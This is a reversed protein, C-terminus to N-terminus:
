ENEKIDKIIEMFEISVSQLTVKKNTDKVFVDELLGANQYDLEINGPVNASIYNGKLQSPLSPADKYNFSYLRYKGNLTIQKM